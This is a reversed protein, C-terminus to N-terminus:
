RLGEDAHPRRPAPRHRERWPRPLADVAFQPYAADVVARAALLRLRMRWPTSRRRLGRIRNIGVCSIVQFGADEFMKIIIERTFWRLHTRDMVGSEAYDWRGRLLGEIVTIHGVNPIAAVVHGTDTMLARTTRLAEWPDVMHELVDNFVVLDFPETAPLDEPFYGPACGVDLVRRSSLPIFPAMEERRNVQYVDSQIPNSVWSPYHLLRARPAPAAHTAVHKPM